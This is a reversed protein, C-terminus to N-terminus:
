SAPQCTLTPPPGSLMERAASEDRLWPLVDRLPLLLPMRPHIEAVPSVAARTLIAFRDSEDHLALLCFDPSGELRFLYKQRDPAPGWEYFGTALLACRRLHFSDRFLPRELVTEARANIVLKGDKGPIGWRLRRLAAKPGDGPVLAAVEQGPRVEHDDAVPILDPWEGQLRELLKKVAPSDSNPDLEYRGCM